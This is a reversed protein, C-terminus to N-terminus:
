AIKDAINGMGEALTQSIAQAVDIDTGTSSFDTGAGIYETTKDVTEAGVVTQEQTDLGNPSVGSMVTGSEDATMEAGTAVSELAMSLPSSASISIDSM